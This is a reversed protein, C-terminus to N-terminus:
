DLTGEVVKRGSAYRKSLMILTVNVEVLGSDRVNVDGTGQRSPRRAIYEPRLESGLDGRKRKGM